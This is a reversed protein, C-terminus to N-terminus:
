AEHDRIQGREWGTEHPQAKIPEAPSGGEGEHEPRCSDQGGQRRLRENEASLAALQHLLAPMCFADPATLLRGGPLIAGGVWGGVWQRRVRAMAEELAQRAALPKEQPQRLEGAGHWRALPGQKEQLAHRRM